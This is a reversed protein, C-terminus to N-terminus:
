RSAEPSNLADAIGIILIGILCRQSYMSSASHDSTTYNKNAAPNRLLDHARLPAHPNHLSVRGLRIFVLYWWLDSLM